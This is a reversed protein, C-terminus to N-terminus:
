LKLSNKTIKIIKILHNTKIHPWVVRKCITRKAKRENSDNKQSYAMFNYYITIVWKITKMPLAPM